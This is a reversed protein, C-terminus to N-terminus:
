RLRDITEAQRVMNVFESRYGYRDEGFASRALLILDAFTFNGTYRGGKLLEGFAAVSAAFRLNERRLQKRIDILEALDHYRNTRAVFLHM